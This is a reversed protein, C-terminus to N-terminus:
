SSGASNLNKWIFLSTIGVFASFAAQILELNSDSAVSIFWWIMVGVSSGILGFLLLKIPNRPNTPDLGQSIWIALGNVFGGVFSAFLEILSDSGPKLAAIGLAAVWGGLIISIPLVFDKGVSAALKQEIKALLVRTDKYTPDISVIQEFKEYAKEWNRLNLYHQGRDYLDNLQRRREDDRMRKQAQPLLNDLDLYTSDIAGIEGSVVDIVRQWQGNRYYSRAREYLEAIQKEKKKLEEQLIGNAEAEPLGLDQRIQELRIKANQSLNRNAAFKRVQERYQKLNLEKEYARDINIQIEIQENQSLQNTSNVGIPSSVIAPKPKQKLQPKLHEPIKVREVSQEVIGVVTAMREAESAVSRRATNGSESITLHIQNCGFRYAQEITKGYGLAQYFGKSFAIAASDLIEQSMGIVYNIHEVIADAQVESYCANLLVCEVQESFLGFFNKLADTSVLQERGSEDQLVLGRAGTGHGCFHVVQPNYKLLLGQLEDTRAALGIEVEFQERERSREIM